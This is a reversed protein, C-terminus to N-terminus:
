NFQRTLLSPTPNKKRYDYHKLFQQKLEEAYEEAEAESLSEIPISTSPKEVPKFQNLNTSLPTPIGLIIFNQPAPLELRIKREM